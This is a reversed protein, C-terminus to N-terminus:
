RALSTVGGVVRSKGLAESSRGSVAKGLRTRRRKGGGVGVAFELAHGVQPRAEFVIETAMRLARDRHGKRWAQLPTEESQARKAHEILLRAMMPADELQIAADLALQVTKLPLNPEDPLHETQAQKFDSDLALQCLADYNMQENTM